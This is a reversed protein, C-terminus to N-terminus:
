PATRRLVQGCRAGTSQGDRWALAGNVWVAAIGAAPRQPEDYSARDAVTAPDFLVLDAALGEAVRGRDALGFRQATLGSMKWVATELPFLGLERCYRGLVRPFTGWLRPHPREGLAIGDSGVMSAEFSLIRQVDAEDMLFYIASGPQLRRAAEPKSLGWEAAIHALERGNCEPHPVSTNIIVRGELLAPETRIMTSSATYPYCDLGVCQHQLAAAIAPLTEKSRGWNAARILKHHSIVVPCALARGIALTEAISVLVGDGEDRMHTTYVGAGGRLPEGVAILEDTPAAAAPPYFTGTSLGIAGAALAEDLLAAMARREAADAARDLANMTAARLTTHGVLAAVNAAAPEDRLRQLYAAFSAPAGGPPDPLLDLPSPRARGPLVPAASIGCNGTVVTTVGQSLKFPLAPQALLATDDHTHADIFGPALVLGAADVRQQAAHGQLAGAPAIAAIRGGRVGVDADRRPARTGDVLTAGTVLWDFAPTGGHEAESLAHGAADPAM